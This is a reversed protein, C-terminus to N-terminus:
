IFYEKLVLSIQGGARVYQCILIFGFHTVKGEQDETKEDKSSTSDWETGIRYHKERLSKM